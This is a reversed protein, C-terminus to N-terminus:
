TNKYGSGPAFLLVNRDTGKTGELQYGWPGVKTSETSEAVM